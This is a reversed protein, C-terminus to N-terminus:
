NDLFEINFDKLTEIFDYMQDDGGEYTTSTKQEVGFSGWRGDAFVENVKVADKLSIEITTM